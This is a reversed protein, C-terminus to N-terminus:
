RRARAFNRQPTTHWLAMFSNRAKCKTSEIKLKEKFEKKTKAPVSKRTRSVYYGHAKRVERFRNYPRTDGDQKEEHVQLFEVGEMAKRFSEFTKMTDAVGVGLTRLAAAAEEMTVGSVATVRAVSEGLRTIEDNAASM